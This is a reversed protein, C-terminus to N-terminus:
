RAEELWVAVGKKIEPIVCAVRGAEPRCTLQQVQGLFPLAYVTSDPPAAFSIRADREPTQEASEGSKLGKFDAM